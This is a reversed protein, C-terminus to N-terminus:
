LADPRSHDQHPIRAPHLLPVKTHRTCLGLAAFFYRSCRDPESSSSLPRLGASLKTRAMREQGIFNLQRQHELFATPGSPGLAIVIRLTMTNLQTSAATAIVSLTLSAVGSPGCGRSRASM